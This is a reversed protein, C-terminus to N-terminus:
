PIVVLGLASRRFERLFGSFTRFSEDFLTATGPSESLVDDVLATSPVLTLDIPSSHLVAKPPAADLYHRQNKRPTGWPTTPPPITPLTAVDLLWTGSVLNPTQTLELTTGVM